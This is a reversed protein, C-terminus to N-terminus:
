NNFGESRRKGDLGVFVYDPCCGLGIDKKLILWVSLAAYASLVLDNTVSEVLQSELNFICLIGRM